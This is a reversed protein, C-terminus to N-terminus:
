NEPQLHALFCSNVDLIEFNKWPTVDGSQFGVAAPRYGGRGVVGLVGMEAM